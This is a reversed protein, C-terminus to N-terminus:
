VIETRWCVLIFVQTYHTALNEKKSWRELEKEHQPQDPNHVMVVGRTDKVMAPWCREFRCLLVDYYWLLVESIICVRFM